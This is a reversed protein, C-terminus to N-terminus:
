AIFVDEHHTLLDGFILPGILDRLSQQLFEARLADNVRRDSFMAKGPKPNARRKGAELRDDLEHSEVESHLRHVLYDIRSRFRKVHRAPLHAALDNEAPRVTGGRTDSGLVALVIGRPVGM